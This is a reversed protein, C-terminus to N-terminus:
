RHYALPSAHDRKGADVLLVAPLDEEDVRGELEIGAVLDAQDAGVAGAEDFIGDADTDRDRLFVDRENNTDGAVLNTAFSTFAVFRGNASMAPTFSNNNGPTGDTAVSVAVPIVQAASPAAALLVFSAALSAIPRRTYM